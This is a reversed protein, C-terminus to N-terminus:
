DLPLYDIPIKYGTQAAVQNLQTLDIRKNAENEVEVVIKGAHTPRISTANIKIENGKLATEM